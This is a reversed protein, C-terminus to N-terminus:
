GVTDGVEAALVADLHTTVTQAPMSLKGVPHKGVLLTLLHFLLHEVLTQALMDMRHHVTVLIYDISPVHDILSHCVVVHHETGIGARIALAAVELEATILENGFSKLKGTLSIGCTHQDVVVVAGHIRTLALTDIIHHLLHLVSTHGDVTDTHLPVIVDVEGILLSEFFRDVAERLNHIDDVDCLEVEAGISLTTSLQHECTALSLGLSGIDLCKLFILIVAQETDESFM